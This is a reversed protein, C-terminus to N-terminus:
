NDDSDSVSYNNAISMLANSSISVSEKAHLVVNSTNKDMAFSNLNLSSTSKRRGRVHFPANKSNKKLISRIPQNLPENSTTGHSNTAEVENQDSFILIEDSDTFTVTHRREPITRVYLALRDLECNRRIEVRNKLSFGHQVSIKESRRTALFDYYICQFSQVHDSITFSNM